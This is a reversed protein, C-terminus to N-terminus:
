NIWQGRGMKSIIVEAVLNHEIYDMLKQGEMSEIVTCKSM